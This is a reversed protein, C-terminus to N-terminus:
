ITDDLDTVFLRVLSAIDQPNGLFRCGSRNAPRGGRLLVRASHRVELDVYLPGRKPHVIRVRELRMGAELRIDPDYVVVGLGNLSLDVVEADFSLAGLRVECALPLKPLTRHRPHERRHLVLLSTPFSLQIGAVEGRSTEHPRGAVFEVHAHEHNCRFRVSDAALLAANAPRSQSWDILIFEHQSDVLLLRSVFMLEDDEFFATLPEGAAKLEQLAREIETESRVM